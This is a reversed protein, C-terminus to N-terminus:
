GSGSRYDPYPAELQQRWPPDPRPIRVEHDYLAYRVTAATTALPADHHAFEEIVRLAEQVRSANAKVVQRSDTRTQQAPHSLGPPTPPPPAPRATFTRM